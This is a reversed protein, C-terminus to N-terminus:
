DGDDDDEDILTMTMAAAATQLPDAPGRGEEGRQM